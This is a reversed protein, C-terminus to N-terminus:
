NILTCTSGLFNFQYLICADESQLVHQPLQSGSGNDERYRLPLRKNRKSLPSPSTSHSEDESVGSFSSDLDSNAMIRFTSVLLPSINKFLSSTNKFPSISILYEQFTSYLHPIRSLLHFEQYQQYEQCEQLYSEQIYDKSAHPSCRKNSFDEQM